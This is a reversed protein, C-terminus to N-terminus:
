SNLFREKQLCLCVHAIGWPWQSIVATAGGVSSNHKGPGLGQLQGHLRTLGLTFVQCNLRITPLQLIADQWVNRLVTWWMRAVATGAAPPDSMWLSLQQREHTLIDKLCQVGFQVQHHSLLLAHNSATTLTLTHTPPFLKKGFSTVPAVSIRFWQM